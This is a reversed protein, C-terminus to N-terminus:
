SYHRYRHGRGPPKPRWSVFPQAGEDARREIEEFVNYIGEGLLDVAGAYSTNGLLRQALTYRGNREQLEPEDMMVVLLNEDHCEILGMLTHRTSRDIRKARRVTSSLEYGFDDMVNHGWELAPRYAAWEPVGMGSAVFTAREGGSVSMGALQGAFLSGGTGRKRRTPHVEVHGLHLVSSYPQMESYASFSYTDPAVPAGRLEYWWDYSNQKRAGQLQGVAMTTGPPVNAHLTSAWQNWVTGDADGFPRWDPARDIYDILPVFNDDSLNEKRM